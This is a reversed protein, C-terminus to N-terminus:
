KKHKKEPTSKPKEKKKGLVRSLIGEKKEKPKEKKETKHKAKFEDRIKIDLSKLATIVEDHTAGKKIKAIQPLFELHRVNCKRRRTNGDITVLGKGLDEVILCERGSDRGALKVCLRGIEM